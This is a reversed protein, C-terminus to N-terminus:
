KEVSVAITVETGDENYMDLDYGYSRLLEAPSMMNIEKWKQAMSPILNEDNVVVYRYDQDPITLTAINEDSQVKGTETMYGIMMDYTKRTPGYNYYVTHIGPYLKHEIKDSFEGHFKWWAEQIIPMEDEPHDIRVVYGSVEFSEHSYSDM